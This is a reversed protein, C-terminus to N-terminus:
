VVVVTSKGQICLGHQFETASAVDQLHQTQQQIENNTCEVVIIRQELHDTSAQIITLIQPMAWTSLEGNSLSPDLQLRSALTLGSSISHESMSPTGTDYLSTSTARFSHMIWDQVEQPLTAVVETKELCM